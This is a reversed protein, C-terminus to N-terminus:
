PAAHCQSAVTTGSVGRTTGAADWAMATSMSGAGGAGTGVGSFGAGAGTM